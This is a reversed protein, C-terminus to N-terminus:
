ALNHLKHTKIQIENIEKRNPSLVSSQTPLRHGETNTNSIKNEQNEKLRRPIKARTAAAGLVKMKCLSDTHFITYVRLLHANNLDDGYQM